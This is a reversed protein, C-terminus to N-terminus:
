QLTDRIQAALDYDEEEVAMELKAKLEALTMSEDDDFEGRRLQSSSSSARATIICPPAHRDDLGRFVRRRGSWPAM